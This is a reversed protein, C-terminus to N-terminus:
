LFMKIWQKTVESLRFQENATVKPRGYAKWADFRDVVKGLNNCDTLQANPNNLVERAAGLEHTLVPIGMANAEAMVMGFTEPFVVNPYFVCFSERLHQEVKERTTSGVNVVGDQTTAQAKLYGPNTIYLELKPHRFRLCAFLNLTHDLGKHPSSLFILKNPKVLVDNPKLRDEIPNYMVDIDLPVDFGLKSILESKIQAKHWESVALLKTGCENALPLDYILQENALDHLWLYSKARPWQKSVFPMLKSNRLIVIHKPELTLLQDVGVYKAKYKAEVQRCHQVVTVDLGSGALSEAVRTVTVETGGLPKTDMVHPDYPTPCVFDLFMIM